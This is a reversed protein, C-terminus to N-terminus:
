RIEEWLLKKLGFDQKFIILIFDITDIVGLTLIPMWFSYVNWIFIGGIILGIIAISIAGSKGNLPGLASLLLGRFIIEELLSALIWATALMLLFQKWNGGMKEFISLDHSQGVKNEAAPEIIHTSIFAIVIGLGLSWLITTLGSKPASFGIESLNLKDLGIAIVLFIVAIIIGLGPQKKLGTLVVVGKLLVALGFSFWPINLIFPEM